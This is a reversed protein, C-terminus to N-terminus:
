RKSVIKLNMCCTRPVNHYLSLSLSLLFLSLFCAQTVGAQSAAVCVQPVSDASTLLAPGPHLSLLQGQSLTRPGGTPRLLRSLRLCVWRGESVNILHKYKRDPHNSSPPWIPWNTPSLPRPRPLRALLLPRPLIEMSFFCPCWAEVAVASGEPLSLHLTCLYSLLKTTWAPVETTHDPLILSSLGALDREPSMLYCACACILREFSLECVYFHVTWRIAM